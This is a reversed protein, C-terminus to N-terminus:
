RTSEGPCAAPPTLTFRLTTGHGPRGDIAVRGGHREVIQHVIALGIGIGSFEAAPHLRQFPRFLKGAYAPDFGLGHDQVVYEPGDATDHVDIDITPVAGAAVFKCSNDLVREFLKQTLGPDVVAEVGTPATVVPRTPYARGVTAAAAQIQASVNTPAPAFAVRSVRSLDLLGDIMEALKRAAARVRQMYDAPKGELSPGLTEALASSFGDIARLPARLDHSVAYVLADLDRRLRVVEHGARRERRSRAALAEITATAVAADAGDVVADAGARLADARAAGHQPSLVVVVPVTEGGARQRIRCCADSAQDPGECAEIVIAEADDIAVHDIEGPGVVRVSSPLAHALGVGRSTPAGPPNLCPELAPSPPVTM